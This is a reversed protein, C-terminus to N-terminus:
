EEKFSHYDLDLEEDNVGFQKLDSLAQKFDLDEFDKFDFLDIIRIDM